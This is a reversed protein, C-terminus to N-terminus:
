FIHSESIINYYDSSIIEADPYAAKEVNVTFCFTALKVAAQETAGSQYIEIDAQVKGAVSLM